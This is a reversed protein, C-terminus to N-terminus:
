PLRGEVLAPPSAGAEVGWFPQRPLEHPIGADVLKQEYSQALALAQRLQGELLAIKADKAAVTEAHEKRALSLETVLDDVQGQLRDVEARLDAIVGKAAEQAIAVLSKGGSWQKYVAWVGPMAVIGYAWSQSFLEGADM